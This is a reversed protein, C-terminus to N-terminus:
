PQAVINVDTLFMMGNWSLRPKGDAELAQTAALTGDPRQLGLFVRDRGLQATPPIPLRVRAGGIDGVRWRETTQGPEGIAAGMRWQDAVSSDEISQGQDNVIAAIVRFSGSPEANARWITRIDLNSGPLAQQPHAYGLLDLDSGFSANGTAAYGPLKDVDLTQIDRRVYLVQGAREGSWLPFYRDQLWALYEPAAGDYTGLWLIAAKVDREQSIRILDASTIWGSDFRYKDADALEPPTARRAVTAAYPHDTVLLDDAALVARVQSGAEILLQQPPHEATTELVMGVPRPLSLVYGIAALAFVAHAFRPFASRAAVIGTSLLVLPPVVVVMHHNLLPSHTLLVAITTALWALLILGIRPAYKLWVVSGLTALLILGWGEDATERAVRTLNVDLNPSQLAKLAAHYVVGQEWVRQLGFPLSVALLTVAGVVGCLAVIALRWSLHKYPALMVALLLCATTGLTLAKVAFSLALALAALVFVVWARPSGRQAARFGSLALAVSPLAFGLTAAESQIVRSQALYQPSICLLGLAVLAGAKGGLIWGASGMAAFGIMSWFVSGVRAAGLTEGGMKFFPYLSPYFLPGQPNFIEAFPRFGRSINILGQSYKGEDFGPPNSLNLLRLTLALGCILAV